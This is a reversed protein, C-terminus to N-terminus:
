RMMSATDDGSGDGGNEDIIYCAIRCIGATEEAEAPPQVAAQGPGGRHSGRGLRGGGRARVGRRRLARTPTAPRRTM